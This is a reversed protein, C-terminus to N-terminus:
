RSRHDHPYLASNDKHCDRVVYRKNSSSMQAAWINNIRRGPVEDEYRKWRLSTQGELAELRNLESLRDMGEKSIRWHGDRACHFIRGNWEYPESRGTTSIGQSDLTMRASMFAHVREPLYNDPDFREESRNTQPM